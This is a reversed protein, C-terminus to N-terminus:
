SPTAVTLGIDTAADALRKDYTVFAHLEEAVTVATALHLADLTRLLPNGITAAQEVIQHSLPVTMVRKAMAIARPVLDPRRRGVARVLEPYLLISSVLADSLNETLFMTLATSETEHQILKAAASTDLYIV